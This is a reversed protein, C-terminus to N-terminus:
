DIGAKGILLLTLIQAQYLSPTSAEAKLVVLLLLLLALMMMASVCEFGGRVCLGICM